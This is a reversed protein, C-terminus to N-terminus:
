NRSGFVKKYQKKDMKAKKKSNKARKNQERSILDNLRASIDHYKTLLHNIFIRAKRKGGLIQELEGLRSQGLIILKHYPVEETANETLIKFIEARGTQIGFRDMTYKVSAFVSYRKVEKEVVKNENEMQGEFFSAPPNEGRHEYEQLQNITYDEAKSAIRKAIASLQMNSPGFIGKLKRYQRPAIRQAPRLIRKATKRASRNLWSM